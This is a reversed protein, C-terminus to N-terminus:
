VDDIRGPVLDERLKRAVTMVAEALDEKNAPSMRYKAAVARVIMEISRLAANLKVEKGKDRLITRLAAIEDDIGEIQAAELLDAENFVTAYFNKRRKERPEGSAAADAPAADLAAADATADDTADSM